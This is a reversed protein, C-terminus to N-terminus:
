PSSPYSQSTPLAMLSLAKTDTGPSLKARENDYSARTPAHHMRILESAARVITDKDGSKVAALIQNALQVEKSEESGADSASAKKGGPDDVYDQSGDDGYHPGARLGAKEEPSHFNAEGLMKAITANM